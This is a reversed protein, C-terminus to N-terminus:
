CGTSASSRRAATTAVRGDLGDRQRRGRVPQAAPRVPRAPVADRHESTSRSRTARGRGARGRDARDPRARLRLGRLVRGAARTAIPTIRGIQHNPVASVHAGMSSLPYALSTGWQIACGSSRTPTTARGPRRRSPWCARTSGAAAARRVVRVPHGPVAADAPRVPRVRRPHLPPLVRGPPRAALAPSYPETIDRNMDWKVYSIPASALVDSLVGSSTTSSRPRPGHRPRAAPPERDAAPRPDGIAWDPHAEFLESRESVMEPEIWLGFTIGSRRSGSPRPRRHGNPCSAGTSSGTASRAHRRRRARRVLRRRARVARRRPRAGVTPSRSAAADEDFDFYTARGTTSSSRGRRPRAVARPRAARPVPAHFADSM